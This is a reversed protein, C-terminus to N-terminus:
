IESVCVTEVLEQYYINILVQDEFALLFAKLRVVLIQFSNTNGRWVVKLSTSTGYKPIDSPFSGKSCCNVLQISTKEKGNDHM